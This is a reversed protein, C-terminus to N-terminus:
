QEKELTVQTEENGVVKWDVLLDILADFCRRSSASGASYVVIEQLNNGNMMLNHIETATAEVLCATKLRKLNDLQNVLRILHTSSMDFHIEIASITKYQSIWDVVITALENNQRKLFSLKLLELDDFEILTLSERMDDTIEYFDMDATRVNKNFRIVNKLPVFQGRPYIAMTLTEMNPLLPHVEYLFSFNGMQPAVFARLQPNLRLFALLMEHNAQYDIIIANFLEFHTLHPFHRNLRFSSPYRTTIAQMRPFLENLEVTDNGVELSTYSFLNSGLEVETVNPYSINVDINGIITMRSFKAKQPVSSCYKNVYRAIKNALLEGECMESNIEIQIQSFISCFAKLIGFTKETEESLIIFASNSEVYKCHAANNKSGIVLGGADLRYKAILYHQAIVQQHKPYILAINILDNIKLYDFVHM